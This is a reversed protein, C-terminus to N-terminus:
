YDIGPINRAINRAQEDLGSYDIPKSVETEKVEVVKKQNTIEAVVKKEVKAPANAVKKIHQSKTTEKKEKAVVEMKGKTSKIEVPVKGLTKLGKKNWSDLLKSLEITSKTTYNREKNFHDKAKVGFDITIGKIAGRIEASSLTTKESKGMASKTKIPLLFIVDQDISMAPPIVSLDSELSVQTATIAKMGDVRFGAAIVERKFEGWTTAFTEIEKGQKGVTTFVKIKRKTVIQESM